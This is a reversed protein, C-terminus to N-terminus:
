DFYIKTDFSIENKSLLCAIPLIYEPLGNKSWLIKECLINDAIKSVEMGLAELSYRMSEPYTCANNSIRECEDCIYCRGAFLACTNPFAKEIKLMNKDFSKRVLKYLYSIIESTNNYDLNTYENLIKEINHTFLKGAIIYAYNYNNLYTKTNFNFEPCSWFKEYDPCSKCYTKILEPNHYKLLENMSVKKVKYQIPLKYTM